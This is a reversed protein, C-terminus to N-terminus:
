EPQVNLAKAIAQYRAIEAAYFKDLEAPKMPKAVVNGTSEFAKRVEPNALSQLIAGNLKDLQANPVRASVFIGAWLDFELKDLAKGAAIAPLAPFLPHPQRATVGYAKLKGEKIMAPINGAMPLFAVDIQGGLLDTVMPATGKYPVHTMRLGAQRAFSEGALHYLTGNGASGYTLDKAGPKRQAEILEELTAAPLDKRAALVLTTSVMVAAPRLEEPKHKVTKLTLPALVLEMPSALVMTQGDAAAALVKQIGLAGSVGGVNDVIVTQGLGRQLDPQVTRAVFDSPGGAPYPVVLTAVSQAGAAGAALTTAALAMRAITTFQMPNEM